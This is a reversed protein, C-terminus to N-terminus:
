EKVSGGTLGSLLHKSFFGFVIIIPIISFTLALISAAYNVRFMSGFNMIGLPITFMRDQNLVVLPLFYNNWSGLFALLSVTITAPRILPFVLRLFIMGESCGDIRGSEIIESPVGSRIFTTMWYVHFASVMQPFILALHTNFMGFYRMQMVYGILGLQTPLMLTAILIIFLVQKGKFTYKAFGYGALASIVVNGITSFIAVYVSNWYYLWFNTRNVYSLNERFYDGIWLVLRQQITVTTHTGMIFMIYFPFTTVLTFLLVLLITIGKSLKIKSM